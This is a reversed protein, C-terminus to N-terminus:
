GGKSEGAATEDLIAEARAPLRLYEPSSYSRVWETYEHEEEPFAQALQCALYAYLRLCPVMASVIGAVGQKPNAAVTHVWEVYAKTAPNPQQHVSLEVGWEAAYGDHLQLEQEVGALLEKLAAQLHGQQPSCRKIAAAYGEAFSRLFFSDEAIYSQFAERPLSGSGLARVFPHHLAGLVRRQVERDRWLAAATGTGTPLGQPAAM